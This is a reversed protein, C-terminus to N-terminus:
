LNDEVEKFCNKCPFMNTSVFQLRYYLTMCDHLRKISEFFSDSNRTTRTSLRTQSKTVGRVAAQWTGRDKVPERPKRLSMDMSQHHRGVM